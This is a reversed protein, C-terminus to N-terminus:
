WRIKMFRCGVNRAGLEDNFRDGIFLVRAPQTGLCAIVHRLQEARDLSYERTVIIKFKIKLLPLIQNVVEPGQMTVLAKDVTRLPVVRDLLKFLEGVVKVAEDM